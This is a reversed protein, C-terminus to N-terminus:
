SNDRQGWTVEEQCELVSLQTKWVQGLKLAAREQFPSCLHAHSRLLEGSLPLERGEDCGEKVEWPVQSLLCITTGGVALSGCREGTNFAEEM